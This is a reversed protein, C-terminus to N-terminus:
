IAMQGLQGLLTFFDMAMQDSFAKMMCSLYEKMPHDDVDEPEVCCILAMLEMTEDPHEVLAAEMMARLNKGAQDKRRKAYDEVAKRKEEATMGETIESPMAVTKRIDPIGTLELWRDLSKAILSAQRAFQRPPLDTFCMM